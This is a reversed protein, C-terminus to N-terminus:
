DFETSLFYKETKCYLSSYIKLEERNTEYKRYIHVVPAGPYYSLFSAVEESASIAQLDQSVNKVEIHYRSRLTQFLSNNILPQNLFGDLNLNPLYTYELM